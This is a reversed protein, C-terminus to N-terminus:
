QLIVICFWLIFLLFYPSLSTYNKQITWPTLYVFVCIGICLHPTLTNLSPPCYYKQFGGRIGGGWRDPQRAISHRKPMEIVASKVDTKVAGTNLRERTFRGFICLFLEIRYVVVNWQLNHLKLEIENCLFYSELNM